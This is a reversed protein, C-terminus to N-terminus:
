SLIVRRSKLRTERGEGEWMGAVPSREAGGVGGAGGQRGAGARAIEEAQLM